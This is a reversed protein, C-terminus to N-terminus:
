VEKTLIKILPVILINKIKGVGETKFYIDPRNGSSATWYFMSGIFFLAIGFYPVCSVSFISIVLWLPCPLRDKYEDGVKRGYTHKHVYLTIAFLVIGIILWTIM